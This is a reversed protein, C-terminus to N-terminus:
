SFYLTDAEADGDALIQEINKRTETVPRDLSDGFQSEYGPKSGISGAKM